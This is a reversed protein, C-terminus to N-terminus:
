RGVGVAARRAAGAPCGRPGRGQWGAATLRLPCPCVCVCACVCECVCARVRGDIEVVFTQTEDVADTVAVRVDPVPVSDPVCVTDATLPVAVKVFRTM